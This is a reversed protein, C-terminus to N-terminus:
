RFGGPINSAPIRDLTRRTASCRIAPSYPRPGAVTRLFAVRGRRSLADGVGSQSRGPPLTRADDTMVEAALRLDGMGRRDNIASASRAVV